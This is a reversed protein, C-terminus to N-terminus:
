TRCRGGSIRGGGARGPRQTQTALEHDLHRLRYQFRLRRAGWTWLANLADRCAACGFYLVMALVACGLVVNTINVLKFEPDVM